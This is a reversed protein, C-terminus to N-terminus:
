LFVTIIIIQALQFNHTRNAFEIDGLVHDLFFRLVSVEKSEQKKAREREEIYIYIYQKAEEHLFSIFFSFIKKNLSFFFGLFFFLLCFPFPVEKVFGLHIKHKNKGKMMKLSNSFLPRM